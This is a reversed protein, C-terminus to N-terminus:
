RCCRDRNGRCACLTALFVFFLKRIVLLRWAFISEVWRCYACRVGRVTFLSLTKRCYSISVSNLFLTFIVAM